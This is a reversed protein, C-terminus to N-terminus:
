EFPVGPTGGKQSILKGGVLKQLKAIPRKRNTFIIALM